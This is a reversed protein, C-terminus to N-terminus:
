DSDAIGLDRLQRLGDLDKQQRAKVCSGVLVVSDFPSREVFWELAVWHPLARLDRGALVERRVLVQRTPDRRVLHGPVAELTPASTFEAESIDLAWEGDQYYNRMADAWQAQIAPDSNLISCEPNLKIGTLTGRLRVHKFVCAWLFLPMPGKRALGALECNEIATGSLSLNNHGCREARCNRLRNWAGVQKPLRMSGEITCRRATVGEIYHARVDLTQHAFQRM